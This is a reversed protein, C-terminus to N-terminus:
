FAYRLRIGAYREESRTPIRVIMEGTFLQGSLADTISSSHFEDFLNNVFLTVRYKESSSEVIGLNLNTIGFSDQVALPSGKIDYNVEDRWVYNFNLFGDFPLDALPLLYDGAISVKWDPSNQLENGAASAQAYQDQGNPKQGVITDCGEEVTQLVYCPANDWETVEADIRALGFMMRFNESLLVTGEVELGKTELEGVNVLQTVIGGDEDVVFDQAQFDEYQTFFLAANLSMRGDWLKSKIGLEYATSEEPAVPNAAKEEDFPKATDFAQRGAV